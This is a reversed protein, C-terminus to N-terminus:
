KKTPIPIVRPRKGEKDPNGWLRFWPSGNVLTEKREEIVGLGGNGKQNKPDNVIETRLYKLMTVYRVGSISEFDAVTRGTAALFLDEVKQQDVEPAGRLFKLDLYVYVARASLVPGMMKKKALAWHAASPDLNKGPPLRKELMEVELGNGQKVYKYPRLGLEKKVTEVAFVITQGPETPLITDAVNDKFSMPTRKDVRLDIVDLKVKSPKSWNYFTLPSYNLANVQVESTQWTQAGTVAVFYGGDLTQQIDVSYKPRPWLEPQIGGPFVRQDWRLDPSAQEYPELGTPDTADM